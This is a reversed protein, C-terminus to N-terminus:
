LKLGLEGNMKMALSGQRSPLKITETHDNSYFRSIKKINCFFMLNHPKFSECCHNHLTSVEPIYRRTTRQFDVSTEFSCIPEMKLSSYASCSVLKLAPAKKSCLKTVIESMTFKTFLERKSKPENLTKGIWTLGKKMQINIVICVEDNELNKKWGNHKTM